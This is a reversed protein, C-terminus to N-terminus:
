FYTSLIKYLDRITEPDGKPAGARRQARRHGPADGPRRRRRLRHLLGIGAVRSYQSLESGVLDRLSTYSNNEKGDTMVVIANIRETDGPGAARQHAESVADLCRPTAGPRWATSRRRSCPATARGFRGSARRDRGRVLVSILGVREQDGQIQDLFTRSRRSPRTWSKARWAARPDAVLYVNTHRKTYWWVDRVVQSSARRRAGPAGDQARGSGRRQRGDPAVAPWRASHVSRGAPLRPQLIIQQAEASLLYDRFRAFTQRQTSADPRGDGPPGPSPGGVAHRGGPLPRDPAGAGAAPQQLLHGDAGPRCLRGSLADRGEARARHHRPRTARAM